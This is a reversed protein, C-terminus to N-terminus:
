WLKVNNIKVCWSNCDHLSRHKDLHLLNSTGLHHLRSLELQKWTEWCRRPFGLPFYGYRSKGQSFKMGCSPLETITRAAQTTCSSGAPCCIVTIASCQDTSTLCPPNTPPKISPCSSWQSVRLVNHLVVDQYVQTHWTHQKNPYTSPQWITSTYVGSFLRSSGLFQHKTSTEEKRNPTNEPELRENKPAYEM